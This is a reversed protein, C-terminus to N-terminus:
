KVNKMDKIESAKCWKYVNPYVRVKYKYKSDSYKDLKVIKGDVYREDILSERVIENGTIIDTPKMFNVKVSVYKSKDNKLKKM